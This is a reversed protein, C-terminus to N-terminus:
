FRAENERALVEFADTDPGYRQEAADWRYTVPITRSGPKPATANGCEEGAAVTLETVTAVIDSFPAGEGQRIELREM